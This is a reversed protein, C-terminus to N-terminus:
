VINVERELTINFQQQVEDIIQQSLSFIEEGKGNGYHVLVLAQKSHVGVNGQKKGKFGLTEILWAAPIKVSNEDIDYFPIEPYKEQIKQLIIRPVVPNKFFSGANGIEEPNPLKSERIAIIANSIDKITPNEIHNQQLIERIAGYSIHLTHPFKQLSFRVSLIVYKGKAKRKFVSERYGFECDQLTFTEVEFTELNLAQLSHFNDKIEVGYAGINQMPATGVNGPILSLNELGALNNEICFLVFEHWNEGAQAEVIASNETESVIKKGSLSIKVVLGEFNKTFLINSGGGLFLIELTNEKAFRLVDKLADLSFVEAFYNTEVAFGFTNYSQLPFNQKIIM